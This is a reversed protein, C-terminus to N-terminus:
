RRAILHHHWAASEEGAPLRRGLRSEYIQLGQFGAAELEALQNEVTTYHFVMSFHDSASNRMSWGAGEVDLRRYRLHNRLNLPFFVALGAMHKPQSLERRSGWPKEGHGPGNQNHTSFVFAGGPGLVRHVERLVDQREEHNVHDIGACSFVVLDLSGTPFRSLDRADGRDVEVGPHLRRAMQVMPESFDIARYDESIARLIPITRGAGVGIDLIAKDRMEGAVADLVVREGADYHGQLDGYHRAVSSKSYGALNVRDPKSDDAV